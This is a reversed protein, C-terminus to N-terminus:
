IRGTAILIGVVILGTVVMALNAAFYLRSSFFLTLSIMGYSRGSERADRIAGTWVWFAVMWAVVFLIMLVIVVAQLALHMSGGGCQSLPM